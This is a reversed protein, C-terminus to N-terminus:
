GKVHQLATELAPLDQEIVSWVIELDVTAYAHILVNRMGVIRRWPVESLKERTHPSLNAAAEGIIELNRVVADQVMASSFFADQGDATYQRIRAVSQTIDYLLVQDDRRQM